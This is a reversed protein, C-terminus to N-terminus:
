LVVWAIAALAVGALGVTTGSAVTSLAAAVVGGACQAVTQATLDLAVARGRRADPITAQLRTTAAVWNAGVGVGWLAAAIPAHVLSFLAVGALAVATSSAVTAGRWIVPAVGAGIARAAHVIGLGIAAHGVTENLVIWAAGTAISVPVKALVVPWEHRELTGRVPAAVARSAPLTAFVAAGAIFTIADIAFAATIGATAVVAGGALVGAVFTANWALGLLANARALRSPAVLDPLIARSAADTLAGLAMRALYCGQVLWPRGAAAAAVMALAAVARGLSALVLLRRRDMRDALAGGLPALLARPAAQAILVVALALADHRQEIALVSIGIYTFWDGYSSVAEGVFFRRFGSVVVGLARPM